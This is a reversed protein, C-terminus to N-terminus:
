PGRDKLFDFCAHAPGQFLVRANRKALGHAYFPDYYKTLLKGIWIANSQLRGSASFERRSFDLDALIEATLQGGLKKSISRVSDEFGSFLAEGSAGATSLPRAVYEDLVRQVRAELPEEIRVLPSELMRAIVPPPIVRRGILRSEDEVILEGRRAKLLKVAIENEFDAQSPQGDTNGGFASGRHRALAELDLCPRHANLRHLLETKGSGTPGSIVLWAFRASDRELTESLFKRGAKYGGQLLPRATGAEALWSRAIQSRLGGRYCHIVCDPHALAHRKWAAVREEKIAGSVLRHGLEIAAEGGQQKYATGVLAREDDNMIPLNVAGPLHGQAFEVPARVDILARGSLFLERLDQPSVDDVKM